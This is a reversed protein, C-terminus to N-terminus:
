NPRLESRPIVFSTPGPAAYDEQMADCYEQCREPVPNVGDCNCAPTCAESLCSGARVFFACEDEPSLSVNTVLCSYSNVYKDVCNMAAPSTCDPAFFELIEDESAALLM